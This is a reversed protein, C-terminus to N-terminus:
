RTGHDAERKQARQHRALAAVFTVLYAHALEEDPPDVPHSWGGFEPEPVSIQARLDGGRERLLELLMRGGGDRCGELQTRATQRLAALRNQIRQVRYPDATDVLEVAETASLGAERLGAAPDPSRLWEAVVVAPPGLLGALDQLGDPSQLLHLLRGVQTPSVAGLGKAFRTADNLALVRVADSLMRGRAEQYIAGFMEPAPETPLDPQLALHEEALTDIACPTHWQLVFRGFGEGTREGLSHQEFARLSHRAGPDGNVKLVFVSGPALAPCQPRPLKWVGSYGGLWVPRVYAREVAELRLGSVALVATLEDLPLEAAPRGGGDRGVCASLLTLTLLGGHPLLDDNAPSAAAGAVERFFAEPAVPAPSGEAEEGGPIGGDDTEGGGTATVFRLLAEGGYGATRSRGLEVRAEGADWGTAQLLARLDATSGLIRGHFVQGAELSQYVFIAGDDGTPRGKLRDPRHHHYRLQRRPESRLLLTGELRCFGEVGRLAIGQRTASALHDARSLDYLLNGNKEQQISLPVPLLRGPEVDRGVYANLFRLDGAVFWRRFDPDLHANGASLRGSSSRICAAAAAGWLASGPIFGESQVLNPNGALTSLVAPQQLTLTYRLQHM